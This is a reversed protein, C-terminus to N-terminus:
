WGPIFPLVVGDLVDSPIREGARCSRRETVGNANLTLTVLQQDPLSVLWCERVGYRAYWGVREEPRGVRPHPSLVEVALDPAGFVRDGVIGSRDGSVYLIDPQVVLAREADLIVDTPALLVEGLGRDRVFSAMELYLFGVIRQHSCTPADALHLVGYALQMPLVCEPTQLYEDTTM